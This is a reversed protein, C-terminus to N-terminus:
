FVYLEAKYSNIRSDELSKVQITPATDYMRLGIYQEDMADHSLLYTKEGNIILEVTGKFRIAFTMACFEAKPFEITLTEGKRLNVKAGSRECSPRQAASSPTWYWDSLMISAGDHIAKMEDPTKWISSQFEYGASRIRGIHGADFVEAKMSSIGCPRGIKALEALEDDGQYKKPDWLILCGSFERAKIINEYSANFCVWNDGMIKQALEYSEPISSHLIPTIGCEKCTLLQQELTPLAIRYEPNSSEFVYNSRLQEFSTQSVYVPQQIESYDAANRMTRNITKDHMLVMVSDATYRVDGEIFKYGFRAAMRVGITSNEPVVGKFHCARHAAAVPRIRDRAVSSMVSVLACLAIGFFIIFLKKM